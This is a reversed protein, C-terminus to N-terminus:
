FIDYGCLGLSLLSYLAHLVAACPSVAGAKPTPLTQTWIGARSSVHQSVLQKWRQVDTWEAYRATHIISSNTFHMNHTLYKMIVAKCFFPGLAFLFFFQTHKQIYIHACVCLELKTSTTKIKHVTYFLNGLVPNLSFIYGDKKGFLWRLKTCKERRELKM